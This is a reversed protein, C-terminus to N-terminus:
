EVIEEYIHITSDITKKWSFDQVVLKGRKVMKTSLRKSKLVSIIGSAIQEFSNPNILISAGRSLEPLSTTNSCVVPVGAKFGELVPMGFGEMLSPYCVCSANRVLAGLTKPTVYGTFIVSNEIDLERTLDKLKSKLTSNDGTIVLKYSPFKKIVLTFSKIVGELNKRVNIGGQNLVYKNKWLKLPLSGGMEINVGLYIVKVKNSPVSFINVVARKVFKSDAIIRKAKLCSILTNLKFLNKSLFPQKSFRFYDPYSLPILDHVTLICPKFTFIPVGSNGTCHYIDIKNRILAIPLLVQEFFYRNSTSLIVSVSNNIKRKPKSSYFIVCEYDKDTLGEILKKIYNGVGVLDDQAYRGDIGIKM